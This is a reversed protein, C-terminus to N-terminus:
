KKFVFKADDNKVVAKLFDLFEGYLEKAFHNTKYEFTRVYNLKQNVFEYRTEYQAFSIDILLPAPAAELQYGSPIKIEVSDIDQYPYRFHIPYKRDEVKEDPINSSTKRNFFNPNLFIRRGTKTFSKKYIGNFNVCVNVEYDGKETFQYQDITLNPTYSSFIKQLDIKEDESDKYEFLRKFMLKQKGSTVVRSDLSISKKNLQIEAITNSVWTNKKSPAVPTHILEGGNEKVVLANIDEINNPMDHIDLLDATCELWLSDNELPVFAIVHNFRNVPFNEYVIGTDRTKVIAPYAKLGATRLMAILLTSLDKCDGYRNRYTTEASYPQWSGLEVEIAVYRTSSQLHKYLVRIMDYPDALDKILSNVETQADISLIFKDKYLEVLWQGLEKWSRFSGITKSIEFKEPAFLVAMQVEDEPPLFDEDARAPINLAEWYFVSDGDEITKEPKIDLGINLTNFQFSDELILKYTSKLTPVDSQPYWHPWLFLSEIEKKYSYELIYPFKVHMLKFSKSKRKTYYAYPSLSSEKIDNKKLKKIENGFIDTIKGKIDDVEIYESESVGFIGYREAKNNKIFIKVSYSYDIRDKSKIKCIVKEELVVADDNEILSDIATKSVIEEADAIIIIFFLSVLILYFRGM